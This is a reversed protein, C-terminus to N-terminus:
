LKETGLILREEYSTGDKKRKPGKNNESYTTWRLNEVRYDLRDDNIHDVVLKKEVNDNVIFAEAAIRHMKFEINIDQHNISTRVYTKHIGTGLVNGTEMNKIYPFLNGLKPRWRNLGGTKFIIFKNKPLIEYKYKRKEDVLDASITSIDVYDVDKIKINLDDFEPFLFQQVGIM